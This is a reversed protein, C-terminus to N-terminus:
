CNSILARTSTNILEPAQDETRRGQQDNTSFYGDASCGCNRVFWSTKGTGPAGKLLFFDQSGLARGLATRKDGDLRDDFWEATAPVAHDGIRAPDLLLVRLLLRVAIGSRVNVVADRQGAM